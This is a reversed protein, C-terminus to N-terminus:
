NRITPKVQYAPFQSFEIEDDNDIVAASAKVADVLFQAAAQNHKGYICLWGVPMAHKSASGLSM